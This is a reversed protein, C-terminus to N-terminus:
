KQINCSVCQLTDKPRVRIRKTTRDRLEDYTQKLEAYEQKLKDERQTAKELVKVKEKEWLQVTSSRQLRYPIVYLVCM